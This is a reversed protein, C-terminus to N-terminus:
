KEVLFMIRDWRSILRGILFFMLVIKGSLGETSIKSESKKHDIMKFNLQKFYRSLSNFNFFYIHHPLVFYNKHNFRSILVGAQYHFGDFDPVAICLIGGPKLIKHIKLLFGKPDDVHELIDGAVIVDFFNNEFGAEEFNQNIVDLGYKEKAIEVAIKSAEVGYVDWGKDRATKLFDGTACGIDLIKGERKYRDIWKYFWEWRSAASFDRKQMDDFYEKSYIKEVEDKLYEPRPNVYVLGCNKCKVINLEDFPLDADAKEIKCSTLHESKNEGCLNCFVQNFKM